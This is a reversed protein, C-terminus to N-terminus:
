LHRKKNKAQNKHECPENILKTKVERWIRNQGPRAEREETFDFGQMILQTIPLTVAEWEAAFKDICDGCRVIRSIIDEEDYDQPHPCGELNDVLDRYLNMDDQNVASKERFNFGNNILKTIIRKEDHYLRGQNCYVCPLLEDMVEEVTMRDEEPISTLKQLRRRKMKAMRARNEARAQEEKLARLKEQEKRRHWEFVKEREHVKCRISGCNRLARGSICIPPSDSDLGLVAVGHLHEWRIVTFHEAEEALYPDNLWIQPHRVPFVDHKGKHELHIKCYLYPCSAWWIRDHDPHAPHIREDDGEHPKWQQDLSVAQELRTATIFIYRDNGEPFPVARNEVEELWDEATPNEKLFVDPEEPKRRGFYYEEDSTNYESSSDETASEESTGEETTGINEPILAREREIRDLHVQELASGLYSTGGLTMPEEHTGYYTERPQADPIEYGGNDMAQDHMRTREDPEQASSPIDDIRLNIDLQTDKTIKRHNAWDRNVGSPPRRGVMAVIRKPEKPYWGSNDKDSKHTACKDEYCATWNISSHNDQPQNYGSRGQNTLVNVQRKKGDQPIKLEKKPSRCNRAYHGTKGCNYCTVAKKEKQMVDLEMPEGQGGYRTGERKHYSIRPKGSNPAYRRPQSYNREGAREQRRQYLRDDIRTAMTVYTHFDAPRNERNLDDKVDTKLGQYFMFMLVDHGWSLKSALQRFRAAYEAVSRTQKLRSLQTEVQREEDAIGFVQVLTQEFLDYDNMVDTVHKGAGLGLNVHERLTPEFWQLASGTLRSAAYTVKQLNTRITTPFYNFYARMQTLFPQLMQPNGDFKEPQNPKLVEGMDKGTGGVNLNQLSSIATGYAENQQTQLEAMHLMKENLETIQRKLFEVEEDDDSDVEMAPVAEPQKGKSSSSHHTSKSDHGM